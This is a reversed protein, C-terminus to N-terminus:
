WRLLRPGLWAGVAAPILIGIVYWLGLFAAALEPCHFTYALAGVGGAGLGAAAGALRLRTPAAERMAWFLAVFAPLSLIAIRFPCELWTQGLVLTARGGDAARLLEAATLLWMAAFPTVIAWRLSALAAGPRGLRLAAAWGAAAIAGVFALKAWFMWLTADRGLTPRLGYLLQMLVLTPPLAVALAVLVRRAAVGRQVAGANQALMAVLQETKM